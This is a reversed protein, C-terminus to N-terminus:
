PVSQPDFGCECPGIYQAVAIAQCTSACTEWIAELVCQEHVDQYQAVGGLAAVDGLLTHHLPSM